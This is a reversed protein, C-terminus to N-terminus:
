REKKIRNLVREMRKLHPQTEVELKKRVVIELLKKYAEMPDRQWMVVVEELEKVEEKTM